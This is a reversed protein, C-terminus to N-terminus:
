GMNLLDDILHENQNCIQSTVEQPSHIPTFSNHSNNYTYISSGSYNSFATQPRSAISTNSTTTQNQPTPNENLIDDIM